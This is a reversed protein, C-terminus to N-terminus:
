QESAHRRPQADLPPPADCALPAAGFAVAVAVAPAAAAGVGCIDVLPPPPLAAAAPGVIGFPACHVSKQRVIPPSLWTECAFWRLASRSLVVVSFSQYTTWWSDWLM